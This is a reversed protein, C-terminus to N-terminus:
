GDCPRRGHYNPPTNSSIRRSYLLVVNLTTPIRKAGEKSCLVTVLVLIGGRRAAVSAVKGAPYAVTVLVVAVEAAATSVAASAPMLACHM